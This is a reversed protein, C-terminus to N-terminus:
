YGGQGYVTVGLLRKQAVLAFQGEYPSIGSDALFTVREVNGIVALAPRNKREDLFRYRIHVVVADIKTPSHTSISASSAVALLLRNTLGIEVDTYLSNSRLEGGTHSGSGVMSMVIRGRNFTEADYVYPPWRTLSDVDLGAPAQGRAISAAGGILLILLAVRISYRNAM